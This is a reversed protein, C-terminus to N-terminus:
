KANKATKAAKKAENKMTKKINQDAETLENFKRNALFFGINYLKLYKQAINNDTM